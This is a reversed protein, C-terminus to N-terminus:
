ARQLAAIPPPRAFRRRACLLRRLVPRAMPRPAWTPTRPAFASRAIAIVIRALAGLMTRALQQLIWAALLLCVAVAVPAVAAHHPEILECLAFWFGSSAVVLFLPPLREGLRAALVSGDAVRGLSSWALGAWGLVLGAGALLCLEIALQHYGGALIHDGGYVATHALMSGLLGLGLTAPVKRLTVPTM